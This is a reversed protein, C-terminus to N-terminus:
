FFNSNKPFINKDEMFMARQFNHPIFIMKPINKRKKGNQGYQM